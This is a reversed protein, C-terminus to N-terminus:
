TRKWKMGALAWQEYMQAHEECIYVIHYVAQEVGCAHVTLNASHRAVVPPEVKLRKCIDCTHKTTM